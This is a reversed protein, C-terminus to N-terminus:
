GSYEDDGWEQGFESDLPDSFTWNDNGFVRQIVTEQYTLTAVMDIGINATNSIGIACLALRQTFSAFESPTYGEPNLFDIVDDTTTMIPGADTGVSRWRQYRGWISRASVSASTPINDRDIMTLYFEIAVSSYTSDNLGFSADWELPTVSGMRPIPALPVDIIQPADITVLQESFKRIRARKVSTVVFSKKPITWEVM